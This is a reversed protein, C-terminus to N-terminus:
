EVVVAERISAAPRSNSHPHSGRKSALQPHFECAPRIVNKLSPVTAVLNYSRWTSTTPNHCPTGTITIFSSNCPVVRTAPAPPNTMNAATTTVLFIPWIMLLILKACTYPHM